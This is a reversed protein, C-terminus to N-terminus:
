SGEGEREMFVCLSVSPDSKAPVNVFRYENRDAPERLASGIARRGKRPRDCEEGLWGVDDAKIRRHQNSPWVM